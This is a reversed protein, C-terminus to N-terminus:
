SIKSSGKLQVPRVMKYCHFIAKPEIALACGQNKRTHRELPPTPFSGRYRFGEQQQEEM